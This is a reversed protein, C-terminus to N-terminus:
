TTLLAEIECDPQKNLQKYSWRSRENSGYFVVLIGMLFWLFMRSLLTFENFLQAWWWSLWVVGTRFIIIDLGLFLIDSQSTLCSSASAPPCTFYKSYRRSSVGRFPTFFSMYCPPFLSVLCLFVCHSEYWHVNLRFHLHLLM